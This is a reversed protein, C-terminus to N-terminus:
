SVLQMFRYNVQSHLPFHSVNMDMYKPIVHSWRASNTSSTRVVTAKYHKNKIATCRIALKCLTSPEKRASTYYQNTFLSIM